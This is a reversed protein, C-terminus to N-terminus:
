TSEMSELRDLTRQITRIDPPPADPDLVFEVVGQGLLTRAQDRGAPTEVDVGQERLSQVCAQRLRRQAPLTVGTRGTLSWSLSSVETRAGDRREYPLKPLAVHEGHDLQALVAVVLVGVAAGILAHVLRFGLAVLIGALACGGLATLAWRKGNM